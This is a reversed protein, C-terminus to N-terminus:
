RMVGSGYASNIIRKMKDVEEKTFKRKIFVPPINIEKQEPLEDVKCSVMAISAVDLINAKIEHIDTEEGEIVMSIVLRKMM